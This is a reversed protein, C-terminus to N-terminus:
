QTGAAPFGPATNVVVTSASAISASKGTGHGDSYSATARLYNGQDAEVPTYSASLRRRLPAGTACTWRLAGVELGGRVRERGLRGSRGFATDRHAAAGPSLTVEGAEGVNTLIITVDQSADTGNNEAGNSDKGDHIWVIVRYTSKTEYDLAAKTILQGSSADIDFSNADSGGLIYTITDLQADWASVPRGIDEGPPTNEDLVRQGREITLFQPPTNAPPPPPPAEQQPPPPPPPPQRLM